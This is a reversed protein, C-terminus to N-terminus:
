STPNRLSSQLFLLITYLVKIMHDKMKWSNVISISRSSWTTESYKLLGWPIERRHAQRHEEPSSKADVAEQPPTGYSLRSHCWGCQIQTNLYMVIHQKRWNFSADQKMRWLNFRYLQLKCHKLEEFRCGTYSSFEQQQWWM